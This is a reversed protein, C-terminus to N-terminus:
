SVAIWPAAVQRGAVQRVTVQPLPKLRSPGGHRGGGSLQHTRWGVLCGAAGGGDQLFSTPSIHRFPKRACAREWVWGKGKVRRSVRGAAAGARPRDVGGPRLRLRAQSAGDLVLAH